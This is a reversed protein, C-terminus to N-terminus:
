KFNAFSMFISENYKSASLRVTAARDSGSVSSIHSSVSNAETIEEDAAASLLHEADEQAGSVVMKKAVRSSLKSQDDAM